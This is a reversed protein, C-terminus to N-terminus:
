LLVKICDLPLLGDLCEIYLSHNGMISEASKFIAKSKVIKQKKLTLKTLLKGDLYINIKGFLPGLPSLLEFAKGDFNWKAFSSKKKSVAGKSYLFFKENKFDWDSERNGANVLAEYFGHTVYGKKNTGEVVFNNAYLHSHPDLAIGILGSANKLTGVWCKKENISLTYKGNVKKLQVSNENSDWKQIKGSDVRIIGNKPDYVNIEWTSKNIVIEKYDAGKQNLSFKGWSNQVDIPSNFDLLIRMTGDLKFKMDIAKVDIVKKIYTFSNGENANLNFGNKRDLNKWSAKALNITGFNQPDKSLFMVYISDKDDIFGTFTQGWIGSYENETNEPHWLAGKKFTEYKDANTMNEIKARYISQYNRNISVSTAPFYVYGDHTFSPFFEQLPSFGTKKEVNMIIKAESYPGEPKTATSVALAWSGGGVIDMMYALVWDDKRKIIMPAYMRWYRNLLPADKYQSSYKIPIKSVLFPGEPKDSVAYGIGTDEAHLWDFHNTLWDFVMHYKGDSYTVMVDPVQIRKSDYCLMNKPFLDGLKNWTKGKDISKYIVCNVDTTVSDKDTQYNEKYEGIYLYWNKSLSDTFLFGNVPWEMGKSGRYIPNNSFREFTDWSPSGYAYHHSWDNKQLLLAYDKKQGITNFVNFLIFPFLAFLTINKIM